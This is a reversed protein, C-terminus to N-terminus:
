QRLFRSAGSRAIFYLCAKRTDQAAYEHVYLKMIKEIAYFGACGGDFGNHLTRGYPLAECQDWENEPMAMTEKERVRARAAAKLTGNEEAALVGLSSVFYMTTNPSEYELVPKQIM